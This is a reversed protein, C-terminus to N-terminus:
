GNEHMRAEAIREHMGSVDFPDGHGDIYVKIDPDILRELMDGDLTDSPQRLHQPPPYFCDGLFLVGAERVRVVISDEAHQGGVHVAELTIGDLYFEAKRTFTITPVRIRFNHWDDVARAMARRSDELLPNKYIEEQLYAQSWPKAASKLLLDRCLNHAIIQASFVDGGFVHDWHHHTYVVYSVPPADLDLLAHMIRRASRPSNGSDILITQTPTIIVGVNPLVTDPNTDRPAIWVQDAIQKLEVSSFRYADM